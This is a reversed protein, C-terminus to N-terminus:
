LDNSTYGGYDNPQPTCHSWLGLKAQQAAQEDRLFRASKTFPFYTYAFGYGKQILTENMLTGDPLYVYRLLRDYRDRNSSLADLELRVKGFKGITRKTFASAEPGGCQVNKRPDHTEPTDVGIFRIEEDKGNMDVTITDGDSYSVVHYLGPDHTVVVDNLREFWGFQRALLVFVVIALSVWSLHRKRYRYRRM